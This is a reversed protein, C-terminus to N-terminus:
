NHDRRAAADFQLDPRARKSGCHELALRHTLARSAYSCVDGGRRFGVDASCTLPAVARSRREANRGEVGEEGRRFSSM